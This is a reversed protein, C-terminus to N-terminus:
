TSAKQSPVRQVASSRTQVGASSVFVVSQSPQTRAGETAFAPLAYDRNAEFVQTPQTYEQVARRVVESYTAGMMRATRRIAEADESTFRVAISAGLGNRRVRAPEPAEEPDGWEEPDGRHAEFFAALDKDSEM